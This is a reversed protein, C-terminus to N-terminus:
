LEGIDTVYLQSACTYVVIRSSAAHLKSREKNQYLYVSPVPWLGCCIDCVSRLENICQAILAWM